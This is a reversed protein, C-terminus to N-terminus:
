GIIMAIPLNSNPLLAIGKPVRYVKFSFSPSFISFYKNVGGKLLLGTVMLVRQTTPAHVQMM